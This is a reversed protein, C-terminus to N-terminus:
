KNEPAPSPSPSPAPAPTEPLKTEQESKLYADYKAWLDYKALFEQEDPTPRIQAKTKTGIAKLRSSRNVIERLENLSRPAHLRAAHFQINGAWNKLDIM